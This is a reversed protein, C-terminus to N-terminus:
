PMRGLMGAMWVIMGSCVLLTVAYFRCLLEGTRLRRERDDQERRTRLQERARTRLQGSGAALSRQYCAECWLRRDAEPRTLGGLTTSHPTSCAPCAVTFTDPIIM